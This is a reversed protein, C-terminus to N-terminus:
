SKVKSLRRSVRFSPGFARNSGVLVTPRSPDSTLSAALRLLPSMHCTLSSIKQGSCLYNGPVFNETCTIVEPMLYYKTSPFFHGERVATPGSQSTTQRTDNGVGSLMPSHVGTQVHITHNSRFSYLYSSLWFNKLPCSFLLFPTSFVSSIFM